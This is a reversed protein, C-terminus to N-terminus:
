HMRHGVAECHQSLSRSSVFGRRCIKCRWENKLREEAFLQRDVTFFQELGQCGVLDFLARVEDKVKADEHLLCGKAMDSNTANYCFGLILRVWTEAEQLDQVGGHHRFECTSPRNDKVINTLNIKRFRDNNPNMKRVLQFKNRVSTIENWRQRNSKQAFAIRNSRCYTNQNTRRRAGNDNSVLLDFANEVAIFCQSLAKLASLGAM